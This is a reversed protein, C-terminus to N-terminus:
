RYGEGLLLPFHPDISKCCDEHHNSCRSPFLPTFGFNDPRSNRWVQPREPCDEVLGFGQFRPGNKLATLMVWFKETANSVYVQIQQLHESFLLCCKGLNNSLKGQYLAIGLTHTNCSSPQIKGLKPPSCSLDQTLWWRYSSNGRM